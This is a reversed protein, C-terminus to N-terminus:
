GKEDGQFYEDDPLQALQEMKRRLDIATRHRAAHFDTGGIWRFRQRRDRGFVHGGFDNDTYDRIILGLVREDAHEFWGVEEGLLRIMPKRAYGALADFRILPIPKM